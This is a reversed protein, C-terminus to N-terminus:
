IWPAPGARHHGRSLLPRTHGPQILLEASGLLDRGQPRLGSGPAPVLGGARGPLWAGRGGGVGCKGLVAKPDAPFASLAGEEGRRGGGEGCGEGRRRASLLWLGWCLFWSAAFNHNAFSRRTRQAGCDGPPNGPPHPRPTPLAGQPCRWPRTVAWPDSSALVAGGCM